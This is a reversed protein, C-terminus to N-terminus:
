AEEPDRQGSTSDVLPVVRYLFALSFGMALGALGVVAFDQPQRLGEVGFLQYALPILAVLLFLFWLVLVLVTPRLDATEVRLGVRLRWPPKVFLVLLLGCAVLTYTLVLQTYAVDGTRDLVLMYVVVAIGCIVLMAPGVFLALLRGLNSIPPAGSSAWFSLGVSPLTLTVIAIISGQKSLYPFGRAVLILVIILLALYFVQTLYLKLVDLLGNVIRQGKEVVNLLAQPSDDLVVIDAVSLAAQSSSRRAVALGAEQMAPLDNVGDGVVVVTRRDGRLAKVVAGALEPTIKGFVTNKAVAVAFAEPDLGALEGGTTVLLPRNEDSGLGAQKLISATREPAGSSFAKITVGMKAFAKITDIAEPRVRESYRLNCLPILDDPVQPLGSAGHLPLLDPHYAFLFVNEYTAEQESADDATDERTERRLITAVRNRMRGFFSPVPGGGNAADGSGPEEPEPTDPTPRDGFQGDGLLAGGHPEDGLLGDQDPEAEDRRFLSMPRELLRGVPSAVRKWASPHLEDEEPPANEEATVLYPGLIQPDGLIYVGRLDEDDFAVASWGQVSLFPAEDVAARRNGPFTKVMARIAVNDAATTLAYDGLIQRLRSEAIGEGDKPSDLAEVEVHAGTLIGAQAFCMVDTNALSEVSRARHVLAGLKGLDATGAAYTLVIMFFLGAPAISFIVSLASNVTDVPLGTDVRFWFLLLLITMLAVVVLLVRLVRDVVREIPTMEEQTAVIEASLASIRRESGVREATHAARGSVCFSGAYVTDGARKAVRGHEGTLMSEDVLIEGEGVVQGDVLVQDGPGLVLVDGVVIESPDISNAKGERIVTARPRAAQEVDRLRRRAFFQQGANLVVNFVAVGLSLLADLPKGLLLQAVAIGVLGANLINYISERWIQSSTRPPRFQITNDQGELRRAAAEEQTLGELDLFVEASVPEPAPPVKGDREKRLRRILLAIAAALGALAVGVGIAIGLKRWRDNSDM